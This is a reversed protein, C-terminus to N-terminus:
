SVSPIQQTGFVLVLMRSFSLHRTRSTHPGGRCLRSPAHNRFRLSGRRCATDKGSSSKSLPKGYLAHAMLRRVWYSISVWGPQLRRLRQRRRQLERIGGMWDMGDVHQRHLFPKSKIRQRFKVVNPRFQDFDSLQQDVNISIWRVAGFM